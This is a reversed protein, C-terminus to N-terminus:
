YIKKNNTKYSTLDKPLLLWPHKLTLRYKLFKDRKMLNFQEKLYSWLTNDYRIPKSTTLTVNFSAIYDLIQLQAKPPLNLFDPYVGGCIYYLNEGMGYSIYNGYLTNGFDDKSEIKGLNKLFDLTSKTENEKTPILFDPPNIILMVPYPPINSLEEITTKASKMDHRYIYGRACLFQLGLKLLHHMQLTMIYNRVKYYEERNKVIENFFDPSLVGNMSYTYESLADFFFDNITTNQFAAPYEAILKNKLIEKYDTVFLGKELIIPESINNIPVYVTEDMLSDYPTELDEEGTLIVVEMNQSNISGPLLDATSVSNGSILDNSTTLMSDDSSAIVATASISFLLIIFLKKYSKLM